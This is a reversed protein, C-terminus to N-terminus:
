DRFPKENFRALAERAPELGTSAAKLWARCSDIDEPTGWGYCYALAVNYEAAMDGQLAAAHELAFYRAERTTKDDISVGQRALTMYGLMRQAPAFGHEAPGALCEAAAEFSVPFSLLNTDKYEAAFKRYKSTFDDTGFYDLRAVDFNHRSSEAPADEAPSYYVCQGPVDDPELLSFEATEGVIPRPPADALAWDVLKGIAIAELAEGAWEALKALAARKASQAAAPATAVPLILGLLVCTRAVSM